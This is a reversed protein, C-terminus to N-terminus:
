NAWCSGTELTFLTEKLVHDCYVVEDTNEDLIITEDNSNTRNSSKM